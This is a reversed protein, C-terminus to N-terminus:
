SGRVCHRSSLFLCFKTLSVLPLLPEYLWPDAQASWAPLPSHRRRRLPSHLFPHEQPQTTAARRGSVLLPGVNPSSLSAQPGQLHSSGVQPSSRSSTHLPPPGRGMVGCNLCLPLKQIPGSPRRPGRQPLESCSAPHLSFTARLKLSLLLKSDTVVCSLATRPWSGQLRPFAHSM